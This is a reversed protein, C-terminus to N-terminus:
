SSDIRGERVMKTRLEHQLIKHLRKEEDPENDMIKYKVMIFMVEGLIITSDVNIIDELTLSQILNDSVKLFDSCFDNYNYKTKIGISELYVNIDNKAGNVKDYDEVFMDKLRTSLEELLAEKTDM